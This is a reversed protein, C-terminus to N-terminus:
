VLGGGAEERQRLTARRGRIMRAIASRPLDLVAAAREPRVGAVDIYAIMADALADALAAIKADCAALTADRKAKAEALRRQATVVRDTLERERRIQDRLRDRPIQTVPFSRRLETM